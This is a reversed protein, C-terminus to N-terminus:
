ESEAWFENKRRFYASSVHDGAELQSLELLTQVVSFNKSSEYISWFKIIIIIITITIIIIIIIFSFTPEHTTPRTVKIISLYEEAM